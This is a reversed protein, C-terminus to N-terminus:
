AAAPETLETGDPRHVHWTGHADRHATYGHSKLRNHRGCAPGGNHPTTLGGRAHEHTHDIQNRSSARGCGPWMCRRGDLLVADRAAGTFRRKRGLDIVRGSSDIVVRRVHGMFSAIVADRTSIPVGTVTECRKDDIDDITAPKAPEGGLMAALETDYEAKTMVINVLPEPTVADPPAAVGRMVLRHLGDMRRQADTRALRSMPDGAADTSTDVGAARATEWDALFEADCQRQFIEMLAAGQGTGCKAHVHVVGDREFMVANRGDHAETHRREAGRPDGFQSWRHLVESFSEFDKRSHEVLRLDGDVVLNRVRPNAHLKAIERVQEVGISGDALHRGVEPLDRLARVTQLRRMTEVPSSNTLAMSWARVSVHGDDRFHGTDDARDLVAVYAAELRRRAVELDVLVRDLEPGSLEAVEAPTPVTGLDMDVVM